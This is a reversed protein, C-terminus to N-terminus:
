SFGVITRVIWRAVTFAHNFLLLTLERGHGGNVVCLAFIVIRDTRATSSFAIRTFAITRIWFFHHKAGGFHSLDSVQSVGFVM